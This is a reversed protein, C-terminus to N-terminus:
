ERAFRQRVEPELAEFVSDPLPDWPGPQGSTRGAVAATAVWNPAYRVTMAMRPTATFNRATSHRRRREDSGEALRQPLCLLLPPACWVRCDFFFVSGAPGTVHVADAHHASVREDDSWAEEPVTDSLHSRPIQRRDVRQQNPPFTAPLALPTRRAHRRERRELRQADM